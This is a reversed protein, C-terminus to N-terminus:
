LRDANRELEEISDGTLFAAADAPLGRSSIVRHRMLELHAEDRQRRYDDREAEARQQATMTAREHEVKWDHLSQKESRLNQVLNWAREADFDDGWPPKDDSAQESPPEPAQGSPQPPPEQGQQQRGALAQRLQDGLGADEPQGAPEQGAQEASM